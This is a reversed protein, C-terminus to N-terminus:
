TKANPEDRNSDGEKAQMIIYLLHYYFATSARPMDYCFGLVTLHDNLFPAM